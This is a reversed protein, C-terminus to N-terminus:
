RIRTSKMLRSYLVKKLTKVVFGTESKNLESCIYAGEWNAYNDSIFVLIEKKM